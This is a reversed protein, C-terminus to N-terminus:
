GIEVRLDRAAFLGRAAMAAGKMKRAGDKRKTSFRERAGAFAENVFEKSGIVAGDTFYRVRCRLMKAMGLEKLVTENEGSELAEATNKTKVGIARSDVKANVSKRELAMGMLRRYRRSVDPWKEAQFGTCQDSMVARVLGERAKKGNGKNGGGVAEGYSSWRYEAPDEVMGARVPNLDIYAAMTRAADGSEVIVSKYREEWLTGSRQHTRNFWRTFRQLLTKMFESLGHMRYTFRAHIEAVWEDRGSTRAEEIEKAVGAVFAESSIALLRKFLEEDTIGGVPMPPVELLIHFHNSMVCYSLVRCGSFNEYMRMFMRFHEREADGFVFRRDVVRSVCHYIAPKTGSEAWPAIWRKRSM